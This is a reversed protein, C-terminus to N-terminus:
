LLPVVGTKSLRGQQEAALSTDGSEMVFKAIIINGHYRRVWWGRVVHSM